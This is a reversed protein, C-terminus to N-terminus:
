TNEKQEHQKIQTLYDKYLQPNYNRDRKLGRRLVGEIAKKTLIKPNEPQTEIIDQVRQYTANTPYEQTNFGLTELVARGEENYHQAGDELPKLQKTQNFLRGGIYSVVPVAWSNGLAKVRNGYRAGKIQTYNDPFGMMRECEVPSLRRLWGNERVFLTGNFAAANGNWNTGYGALLCGAFDRYTTYQNGELTFHRVPDETLPYHHPKLPQTDFLITEPHFDKGGALVFVRRRQQALGFYVADFVGWAVNREPGKIVGANAWRKKPNLLTDYGALTSIFQAFAGTKDSMVGVVNEWLVMTKDLNETERVKDNAKIIDLFTLTLNGRDDKLGQRLGSTSFAQCPTGGVIMDPAVIEKNLLLQPITKMDGLNPVTPYHHTLVKSPFPEIESLWQVDVWENLAVTAAEIGSCVSGLTTKNM